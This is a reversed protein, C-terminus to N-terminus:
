MEGHAKGEMAKEITGPLDVTVVFRHTIRMAKLLNQCAMEVHVALVDADDYIGGKPAWEGITCLWERERNQVFIEGQAVKVLESLKM